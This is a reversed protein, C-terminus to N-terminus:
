HGTWRVLEPNPPSAFGESVYLPAGVETAHLSIRQIGLDDFRHLLASLVARAHGRRRHGHDTVMSGIYGSLGTPNGPAPVKRLVMGIGCAALGDGAGRDVVAAFFDGSRIGSALVPATSADDDDTVAIGMSEFMLRRLRVLEAVDDDGAWRVAGAGTDDAV